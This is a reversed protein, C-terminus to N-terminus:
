SECAALISNDQLRGTKMYPTLDLRFSAYGFPWGGVLNGNLWVAAYSMAGDIDLLFSLGEESAARSIKRRYWGVGFSPLTAMETGVNPARFPGKIAWDHPLTVADWSSDNFRLQTYDINSGPATGSPRSFKTSGSIFNNAAPLMYPKLNSYSLSDPNSAFRNFRWGANLSTRARSPASSASGTLLLLTLLLLMPSASASLRRIIRSMQVFGSLPLELERGGAGPV